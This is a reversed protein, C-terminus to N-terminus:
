KNNTKKKNRVLIKINNYIKDNYYITSNNILGTFYTTNWKCIVFFNNLQKLIIPAVYQFSFVYNPNQIHFLDIIDMKYLFNRTMYTIFHFERIDIFEALYMWYLKNKNEFEIFKKCVVIDCM